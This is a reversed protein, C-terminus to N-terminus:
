SPIHLPPIANHLPMSAEEPTMQIEGDLIPASFDGGLTALQALSAYLRGHKMVVAGAFVGSYERKCKM